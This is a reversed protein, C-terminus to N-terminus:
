KNGKGYKELSRHIRDLYNRVELRPMRRIDEITFSGDTSGDNTVPGPSAEANVRNVTEANVEATKRRKDWLAYAAALLMGNEWNEGVEDPLANIDAEPFLLLLEESEADLRSKRAAEAKYRANEERLAALEDAPIEVVEAADAATDYAESVATESVDATNESLIENENM